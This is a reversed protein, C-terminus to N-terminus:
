AGHCEVSGLIKRKAAPSLNRCDALMQKLAAINGEFGEVFWSLREIFDVQSELDDNEHNKWADRVRKLNRSIESRGELLPLGTAMACYISVSAAILSMRVSREKLWLAEIKQLEEPPCKESILAHCFACLTQLDKDPETGSGSNEYSLHHITLSQDFTSRSRTESMGCRSCWPNERRFKGARELWAPSSTYKRHTGSTKRRM